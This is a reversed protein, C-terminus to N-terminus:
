LFSYTASVPVGRSILTHSTSPFRQAVALPEHLEVDGAAARRRRGVADAAVRVAVDPGARARAHLDDVGAPSRIPIIRNGSVHALTQKPPVRRFRSNM